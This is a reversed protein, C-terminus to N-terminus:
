ILSTVFMHIFFVGGSNGFTLYDPIVHSQLNVVNKINKSIWKIQVRKSNM